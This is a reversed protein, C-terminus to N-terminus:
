RAYLRYQQKAQERSGNEAALVVVLQESHRTVRIVDLELSGELLEGDLVVRIFVPSLALRVRLILERLDDVGVLNQLVRILASEVVFVTLLSSAKKNVGGSEKRARDSVVDNWRTSPHEKRAM